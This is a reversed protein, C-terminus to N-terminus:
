STVIRRETLQYTAYVKDITNGLKEMKRCDEDLRDIVYDLSDSVFTFQNGCHRIRSNVEKLRDVTNGIKKSLQELQRSNYKLNIPEVYFCFRLGSSEITATDQDNHNQFYDRTKLVETIVDFLLWELFLIDFKSLSAFGDIIELFDRIVGTGQDLLYTLGLQDIFSIIHRRGKVDYDDIFEALFLELKQSFNSQETRSLINNEIDIKWSFPDHQGFRTSSARHGETDTHCFDSTGPHEGLLVGIISDEPSHSHLKDRLESYGDRYTFRFDENNDPGDFIDIWLVRDRVSKDAMVFASLIDNAAKSHGTGFINKLVVSELYEKSMKQATTGNVTYALELDEDWGIKTGDTGRMAVVGTDDGIVITMAAWQGDENIKKSQGDKWFTNGNLATMDIIKCSSYRNEKELESLFALEDQTKWLRHDQCSKAFEQITVGNNLQDDTWPVDEFRMYSLESFILADIENYNKENLPTKIKYIYKTIDGGVNAM